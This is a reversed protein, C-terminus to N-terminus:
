PKAPLFKRAISSWAGTLIDNTGMDGAGEGQHKADSGEKQTTLVCRVKATGFFFSKCACLLVLLAPLLWNGRIDEARRAIIPSQLGSNAKAEM